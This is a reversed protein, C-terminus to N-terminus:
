IARTARMRRTIVYAAPVLLFLLDSGSPGRPGRPGSGWAALSACGFLSEDGILRAPASGGSAAVLVGGEQGDLKGNGNCDPNSPCPDFVDPIGDGDTDVYDGYAIKLARTTADYYSIIPRDTADLVLSSYWGVDGGRDVTQVTWVGASRSAYKLAHDTADYYSIHPNGARDLALSTVSSNYLTGIGGVTEIIWQAGDFHAYRVQALALSTYSIHPLGAADVQISNLRGCDNLSDVTETSWTGSGANRKAYLLKGSSDFYSIQPEGNADLALSNYKGRDQNGDITETVWTSGSLYAYKLDDSVSGDPNRYDYYSVHPVGQRDVKLSNYYSFGGKNTSQDIFQTSTQGQNKRWYKLQLTVADNYAVHVIGASDVALSTFEGGNDVIQIHWTKDSSNLAAYRLKRGTGSFYAIVPFGEEGLGLSTSAGSSSGTDVFQLAWTEADAARSAVAPGLLAALILAALHNLKM